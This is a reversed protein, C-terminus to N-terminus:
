NGELFEYQFIGTLADLGELKHLYVGILESEHVTLEDISTNNDGKTEFVLVSEDNTGIDYINTIRHTCLVREGDIVTWYTIIDGVQLDSPDDINTDVVIIDGQDFTPYMSDSLIELLRYGSSDTKKSGNDSDDRDIANETCATMSLSLLLVAVTVIILLWKRHCSGACAPCHVPPM